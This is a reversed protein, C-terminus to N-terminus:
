WRSVAVVDSRHNSALKTIERAVDCMEQTGQCRTVIKLAAIGIKELREQDAVYDRMVEAIDGMFDQQGGASRPLILAMQEYALLLREAKAKIKTSM